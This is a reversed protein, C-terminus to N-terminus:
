DRHRFESLRVQGMGMATKRGVGAFFAFHALVTAIKAQEIDPFRYRVWGQTGIESGGEMKLSYTKLEYACSLGKWEVAPFQLHEPAFANWRRHLNGFVLEPLPFPQIDQSQKFSTPSLFQLEVVQESPVQALKEFSSARLIEVSKGIRCPIGALTIEGGLDESLGWLLPALLERRLLAIRLQMQRPPSFKIALTIPLSDQQHLQEAIVTDASALWKLCQAHIARGMTPPLPEAPSILIQIVHLAHPDVEVGTLEYPLGLWEVAMSQSIQQCISQMLAPYLSPKSLVPMVKTVGGIKFLPIWILPYEIEPLWCNLPTSIVSAETSRLVVSLGAIGIEPEKTYTM